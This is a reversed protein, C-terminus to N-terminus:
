KFVPQFTCYSHSGDVDFYSKGIFRSLGLTQHKRIKRRNEDRLDQAHKKQKKNKKLNESAEAMRANFNMKTLRNFDQTM